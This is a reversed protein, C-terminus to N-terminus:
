LKFSSLFGICHSFSWDRRVCLVLFDLGIHRQCYETFVLIFQDLHTIGHLKALVEFNVFIIHLWFIIWVPRVCVVSINLYTRMISLLNQLWSHTRVILQTTWVILQTTRAILQTTWVILQTTRAILQTTWVILQTTRAILQTTRAILQTTWVILQTTRAILQTTWVILQTTRAILQTTWVILQTTRAILQTTRAILQTTRAILEKNAQIFPDVNRISLKQSSLNVQHKWLIISTQCQYYVAYCCKLAKRSHSSLWRAWGGRNLYVKYAIRGFIYLCSMTCKANECCNCASM